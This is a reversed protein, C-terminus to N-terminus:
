LRQRFWRRILSVTIVFLLLGIGARWLDGSDGERGTYASKGYFFYAIDVVFFVLITWGTWTRIKNAYHQNVSVNGGQSAIVTGRGRARNGQHYQNGGSGPNHPTSM